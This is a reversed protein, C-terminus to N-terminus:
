SRELRWRVYAAQDPRLPDWNTGSPHDPFGARLVRRVARGQDTYGLQLALAKVTMVEETGVPRADHLGSREPHTFPSPTIPPTTPTPQSARAAVRNWIAHHLLLDLVTKELARAEAETETQAWRVEVNLWEIADKAWQSARSPHGAKLADLHETVFMEDALARDLAAEGFGSVAGKGRRYISLRGRIGEGRREGAMGVYVVADDSRMQYVGPVKPALAAVTRFPAWESWEVLEDVELYARERSLKV